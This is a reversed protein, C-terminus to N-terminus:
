NLNIIETKNDKHVIAFRDQGLEQLEFYGGLNGKDGFDDLVKSQIMEGTKNLVCYGVVGKSHGMVLIKGEDSVAVQLIQDLHFGGSFTDDIIRSFEVSGTRINIFAIRRDSMGIVAYYGSYSIANYLQFPGFDDRMIITKYLDDMSNWISIQHPFTNKRHQEMLIVTKGDGSPWIGRFWIENSQNDYSKLTNCNNDLISVFSSEKKDKMKAGWIIPTGNLAFKFLCKDFEALINGKLDCFRFIYRSSSSNLVVTEGNDSVARVKWPLELDFEGIKKGNENYIRAPGTKNIFQSCTAFYKGQQSSIVRQNLSNVDAISRANQGIGDYFVLRGDQYHVAKRNGEIIFTDVV